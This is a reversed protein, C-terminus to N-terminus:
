LDAAQACTLGPHGHDAAHGAWRVCRRLNEYLGRCQRTPRGQDARAACRKWRRRAPACPDM